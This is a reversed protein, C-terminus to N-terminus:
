RELYEMKVQIPRRKLKYNMLGAFELLLHCFSYFVKNEKCGYHVYASSKLTILLM